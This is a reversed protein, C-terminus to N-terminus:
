SKPVRPRLIRPFHPKSSNKGPFMLVRSGSHHSTVYWLVNPPTSVITFLVFQLVPIWDIAIPKQTINAQSQLPSNNNRSVEARYATISQALVSSLAGLLASQLTSAVIPSSMKALIFQFSAIFFSKLSSLLLYLLLLLCFRSLLLHNLKLSTSSSGCPSVDVVDVHFCM